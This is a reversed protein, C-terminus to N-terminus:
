VVSKRDEAQHLVPAICQAYHFGFLYSACVVSAEMHGSVKGPNAPLEDQMVSVCITGAVPAISGLLRSPSQRGEAAAKLIAKEIIASSDLESM